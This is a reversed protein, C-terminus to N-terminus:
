RGDGDIKDNALGIFIRRYRNPMDQGSADTMPQFIFPTWDDRFNILDYGQQQADARSIYKEAGDVVILVRDDPPIDGPDASGVKAPADVVPDEEVDDEFVDGNSAPAAGKSVVQAGAGSPPTGVQAIAPGKVKPPSAQAGDQEGACGVCVLLLWSLPYRM